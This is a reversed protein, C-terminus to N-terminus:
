DDEPSEEVVNDEYDYRARHERDGLEKVTAKDEPTWESEPREKIGKVDARLQRTTFSDDMELASKKRKFQEVAKDVLRACDKRLNDVGLLTLPLTSTLAVEFHCFEHSRMVRVSANAVLATPAADDAGYTAAWERYAELQDKLGSLVPDRQTEDTGYYLSTVDYKSDVGLLHIYGDEPEALKVEGVNALDIVNVEPLYHGHNKPCFYRHPNM